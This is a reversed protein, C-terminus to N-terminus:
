LVIHLKSIIRTLLDAGFTTFSFESNWIKPFTTPFDTALVTKQVSQNQIISSDSIPELAVMLLHYM